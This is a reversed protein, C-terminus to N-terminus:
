LLARETGRCALARRVAVRQAGRVGAAHPINTGKAPGAPRTEAAVEKGATLLGSNHTKTECQQTREQSRDEGTRGAASG